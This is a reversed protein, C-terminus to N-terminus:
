NCRAESRWALDCLEPEETGDCCGPLETCFRTHVRAALGCELTAVLCEPAARARSCAPETDVACREVDDDLCERPQADTATLSLELEFRGQSRVQGDIVLYYLRPALWAEHSLGYGLNNQPECGTVASPVGTDTSPHLVYALLGSTRTAGSLRVHRPASQGRLDLRYYLEPAGRDDNCANALQNSSCATNGQIRQQELSPDLDIATQWSTNTAQECDPETLAIGLTFQEPSDYLGRSVGIGYRGPPLKRSFGQGCVLLETCGAGVGPDALAFLSAVDAELEVDLMTDAVRGSLDLQYFVDPAAASACYSSLQASACGLYGIVSQPGLSPDLQLAGACGDNSPAGACTPTGVSAAVRVTGGAEPDTSQVVLLYRDPPLTVQLRRGQGNLRYPEACQVLSLDDCPGLALAAELEFGADIALTVPLPATAARLDLAFYSAAGAQREWCGPVGRAPLGCVTSVSTTSTGQDVLPQAQECRSGPQARPLVVCGRVPDCSAESCEDALEACPTTAEAECRGSRCHAAGCLNGPLCPEGELAALVHCAGTHEDCRAVQCPGASSACRRANCANPEGLPEGEGSARAAGTVAEAPAQETRGCAGWVLGLLAVSWRRVILLM